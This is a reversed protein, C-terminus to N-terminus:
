QAYKQADTLHEERKVPEEKNRTEQTFNQFLNNVSSNRRYDAPNYSSNRSLLSTLNNEGFIDSNNSVLILNKDRNLGSDSRSNHAM